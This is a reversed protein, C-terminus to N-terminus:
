LKKGRRSASWVGVAVLPLLAASPCIRKPVEKIAKNVQEEIWAAVLEEINKGKEEVWQKVKEELEKKKDALQKPLVIANVTMTEGFEEEGKVLRWASAQVGWTSFRATSWDFTAKEGHQVDRDLPQRADAGWTNRKNILYCEGAKWTESGSNQIAVEIALVDGEVLVPWNTQRTVTAALAYRQWLDQWEDLLTCSSGGCTGWKALASRLEERDFGELRLMKRIADYYGQNLTNATARAGTEQNQYHQVGVSNFDCVEEMKWTTALPNWCARTNEKPQWAALADVALDSMPVGELREVVQVFFDRGVQRGETCPSPPCSTQAALARPTALLSLAILAFAGCIVTALVRRNM